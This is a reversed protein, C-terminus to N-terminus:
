SQEKQMIEIFDLRSEEGYQGYYINNPMGIQKFQVYSCAGLRRGKKEAERELISDHHPRDSVYREKLVGGAGDHGTYFSVYTPSDHMLDWLHAKDKLTALESEDIEVLKSM